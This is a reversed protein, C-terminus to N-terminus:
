GVHNNEDPGAFYEECVLKGHRLILVSHINGYTGKRIERMGTLIGAEDLKESRLTGTRLGDNLKAPPSCKYGPSPQSMAPKAILLLLALLFTTGISNSRNRM